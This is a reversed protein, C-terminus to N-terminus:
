QFSKRLANFINLYTEESANSPLHIQINYHFEPHLQKKQKGKGNIGGFDASGDGKNNNEENTEEDENQTKETESFESIKILSNFTGCIKTTMDSDSGAVQAILGKLEQQNLTHANENSDFLPTYAKRVANGIAIKVLTPNKLKAYEATPKNSADIFGLAKLLPILARDGSAKLGLIDYIYKQTVAEPIKASAIKDFLKGVNKYSPLYPLENAM